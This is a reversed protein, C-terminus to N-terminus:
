VLLHCKVIFEQLLGSLIEKLELIWWWTACGVASNSMFEIYWYTTSQYQIRGLPPAQKRFNPYPSMEHVIVDRPCKKEFHAFELPCTKLTVEQPCKQHSRTSM